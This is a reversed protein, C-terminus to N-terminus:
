RRALVRRAALRLRRVLIDSRHTTEERVVRPTGTGKRAWGIADDVIRLEDFAPHGALIVDFVERVGNARREEDSLHPPEPGSGREYSWDLDDLVLWAGDRLLREILVVALGDVHWDHAGDLFCFDFRPEDRERLLARLWWTYSSHELRVLEVVGALGTRALTEEPTPGAFRHREADVSVVRGGGNEAVAAALYATSSGHGTGLELVATCGGDRVADYLQRGLWPDTLWADGSLLEKVEAYRM